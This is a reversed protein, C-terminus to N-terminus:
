TSVEGLRAVQFKTQPKADAARLYSPDPPLHKPDATLAFAAMAAIDVCELTIRAMGGPATAAEVPVVAAPASPRGPRLFDQVYAEARRADLSIRFPQDTPGSLSMAFLTPLGILPCELALALGRAASLGIRLGTFSGPGTTVALRTLDAYARGNRNLLVEIAGFLLEAHGKAIPEGSQDAINEGSLALQL